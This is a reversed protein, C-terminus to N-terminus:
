LLSATKFGSVLAVGLAMVINKDWWQLMSDGTLFVTTKDDKM